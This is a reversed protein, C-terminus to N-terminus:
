VVLLCPNQIGPPLSGAINPNTILEKCCELDRILTPPHPTHRHHILECKPAAGALWTWLLHVGNMTREKKAERWHWACVVTYQTKFIVWLRHLHIGNGYYESNWELCSMAPAHANQGWSVIASLTKSLISYHTAHFNPMLHMIFPGAHGGKWKWALYSFASFETM